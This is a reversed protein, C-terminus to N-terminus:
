PKKNYHKLQRKVERKGEQRVVSFDETTSKENLENEAFINKLHLSISDASTDFLQAMQAQSLWVAEQEFRVEVQAQGDQSQYIEIPQKM